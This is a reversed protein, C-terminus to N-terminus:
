GRFYVWSCLHPCESDGFRKNDLCFPFPLIHCSEQCALLLWTCGGGRCKLRWIEDRLKRTWIFNKTRYEAQMSRLIYEEAAQASTLQVKIAQLHNSSNWLVNIWMVSDCDARLFPFIGHFRIINPGLTVTVRYVRKGVFTVTKWVDQKHHRLESFLNPVCESINYSETITMM